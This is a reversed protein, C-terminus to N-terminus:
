RAPTPGNPQHHPQPPTFVPQDTRQETGTRVGARQAHKAAQGSLGRRGVAAEVPRGGAHQRDPPIALGAPAHGRRALVRGLHGAYAPKEAAHEDPESPDGLWIIGPTTAVLGAITAREDGPLNRYVDAAVQANAKEDLPNGRDPELGALRRATFASGAAHWYAKYAARGQEVYPGLVQSPHDATVNHQDRYAAIV